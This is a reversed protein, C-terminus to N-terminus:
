RKVYGTTIPVGAAASWHATSGYGRAGYYYRSKNGGEMATDETRPAENIARVFQAVDAATAGPEAHQPEAHQPESDEPESDEPESHQVSEQSSSGLAEMAASKGLKNRYLGFLHANAFWRVSRVEGCVAYALGVVQDQPQGDLYDQVRSALRDRREVIKSDGLTAVLTRTISHSGHITNTTDVKAWVKSQNREFQGAARVQSGALSDLTTFVGGTRSGERRGDWRGREVCYAEVDFESGPGVVFDRAIQRDQKGGKVVTGALVLLPKAGRNQVVLANVRGEAVEPVLRSGSKGFRTSAPAGDVERVQASQQSLAHELTVFEGLEAQRRGLIAFVTLNDFTDPAGVSVGDALMVAAQHHAAVSM